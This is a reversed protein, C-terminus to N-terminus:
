RAAGDVEEMEIYRTSGRTSTPGARAGEESLVSDSVLEAPLEVAARPAAPPALGPWADPDSGATAPYSAAFSLAVGLVAVSAVVPAVWARGGAEDLSTSLLLGGVAYGADRWFRYAGLSAARSSPEVRAAVCALIPSYALATGSGLLFALPAALSAVLVASAGAGSGAVATLLAFGLLALVILGLGCLVLARSGRVGVAATVAATSHAQRTTRRELHASLRDAAWGAPLQLGGKPVSYFFLVAGVGLGGGEGDSARSALWRSMAGWAYATALNLALGVACCAMLPADICSVTACAVRASPYADRRGSPWEIVATSSRLHSEHSRASSSRGGSRHGTESLAAASLLLGCASAVLVSVRMASLGTSGDDSISILPSAVAIALYGLTEVYGAALACPGLLDMAIFLATSWCFAQNVGLLIDSWVIATWTPACLYAVAFALGAAWGLLMGCRRGRTDALAGVMANGCAKSVGFALLFAEAQQENSAQDEFRGGTSTMLVQSLKAVGVVWGTLSVLVGVLVLQRANM